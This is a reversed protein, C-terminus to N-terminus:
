VINKLCTSIMSLFLSIFGKLVCQTKDPNRSYGRNFLQMGMKIGSTARSKLFIFYKFIKDVETFQEFLYVNM